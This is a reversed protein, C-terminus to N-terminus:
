DLQSLYQFSSHFIYKHASYNQAVFTSIEPDAGFTIYITHYQAAIPLEADVVDSRYGGILYNVHDQTILSTVGNIGSSVPISPNAEETDYTIIKLLYHTGNVTVGGHSNIQNVALQASDLMNVGIPSNLPLPMGILIYKNSSKHAQLEYFAVSAGAAVVVVVVVVAIIIKTTRSYSLQNM